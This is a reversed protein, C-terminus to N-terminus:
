LAEFYGSECGWVEKRAASEESFNRETLAFSAAMAIAM